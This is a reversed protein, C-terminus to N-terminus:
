KRGKITVALRDPLQDIRVKIGHRRAAQRVNVTMGPLTCHFDKGQILEISAKNFWEEWPYYAGWRNGSKAERKRKTKTKPTISKASVM